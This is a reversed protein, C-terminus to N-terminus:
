EMDLDQQLPWKCHITGFKSSNKRRNASPTEGKLENIWSCNIKTLYKPNEQFSWKSHESVKLHHNTSKSHQYDTGSTDTSKHQEHQWSYFIVQKPLINYSTLYWSWRFKIQIQQDNGIM